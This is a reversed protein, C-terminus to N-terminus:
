ILNLVPVILIKEKPLFGPKKSVIFKLKNGTKKEGTFNGVLYNFKLDWMKVTHFGLEKFYVLCKNFKTSYIWGDLEISQDPKLELQNTLNLFGITRHFKKTRVDLSNITQIDLSYTQILENFDRQYTLCWHVLTDTVRRIPSTFHIYNSIKLGAHYTDPTNPSDPEFKFVSYSASEMQMTAFANVVQEDTIQNLESQSNTTSIKNPSLVRYCVGTSNTTSIKNPSLVRYCVGLLKAQPSNGLLNNVQVMWYSVMQHTDLNPNESISKTIQFFKMIQENELCHDYNGAHSNTVWSPYHSTGILEWNIKRYVFEISYAPRSM